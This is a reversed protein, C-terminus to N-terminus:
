PDTIKFRAAKDIRDRWEGADSTCSMEGVLDRIVDGPLRALLWDLRDGERERSDLLREIEERLRANEALLAENRQKQERLEGRVGDIFVVEDDAPPQADCEPFVGYESLSGSPDYRRRKPQPQPCDIPNTGNDSHTNAEKMARMRAYWCDEDHTIITGHYGYLVERGCCFMRPGEEPNHEIMDFEDPLLDLAEVRERTEEGCCRGVTGIRGCVTCRWLDTTM